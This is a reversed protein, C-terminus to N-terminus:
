DFEVVTDTTTEVISAMLAPIVIANTLLSGNNDARFVSGQSYTQATTDAVANWQSSNGALDGLDVIQYTTGIVFDGAEVTIQTLAEYASPDTTETLTLLPYM